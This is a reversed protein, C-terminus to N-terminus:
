RHFPTYSSNYRAGQQLYARQVTAVLDDETLVSGAINNVIVVPTTDGTGAGPASSQASAGISQGFAASSGAGVASLARGSVGAFGPTTTAPGINPGSLAMGSLPGAVAAAADTAVSAMDATKSALGNIFGQGVYGGYEAMLRSPSGIDFFDEVPNIIYNQAFNKVWNWMASGMKGIGNMMGIILNEGIGELWTPAGKCWDWILGGLNVFWSGILKYAWGITGNYLGVILNQGIGLLWSGADKCWGWILGPLGGFFSGLHGTLNGISDSLIRLLDDWLRGWRGTLFDSLLKWIDQAEQWLDQFPKLIQDKLWGALGAMFRFASDVADRFWTVHDYAYVLGAALAALGGVVLLIPNADMVLNLAGEAGEMVGTAVAAAMTTTKYLLWATVLGGVVIGLAEAITKHQGFWNVLNMTATLVAQFAPLLASGIRIGLAELTGKAESMRQNFTKQVDAWGQVDSGGKTAAASINKVNNSFVEANAGTLMLSANLGTAGGTMQSLAAQYTQAEPGGKKLLDNFGSASKAVTAFQKAQNAQEASLGRTADSWQQATVQGALYQQAVGQISAPLNKLMTNADAAASKSQNFANQVILGAPGMHATIATTLEDLTGQLGKKGLDQAVQTSTLGMAAMEKAAVSSPNQLARILFALNQTAHQASMNQATMTAIAGGVEAFKINAAAAIPTVNGLSSALDNMRMDGSATTAVLQNMMSNAQDGAMGYSIMTGSLTKAVVDLNANGVKAGEAATKLVDLGAAGHFGASEIHYMGDTLSKTTEGVQGALNLIGNSVMGLNQQTEGAGTKLTTIGSQFDAAMNVTALAAGGAAVAILGFSGRSSSAMSGSAAATEAMETRSAAMGARFGTIDAILRAVLPPLVGLAM